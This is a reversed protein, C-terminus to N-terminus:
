VCWVEVVSLEKQVGDAPALRLMRDGSAGAPRPRDSHICIVGELVKVPDNLVVVREHEDFDRDIILPTVAAEM